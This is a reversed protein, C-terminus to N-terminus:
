LFYSHGEFVFDTVLNVRLVLPMLSMMAAYQNDTLHEKLVNFIASVSMEAQVKSNFIRLHEMGCIAYLANIFEDYDFKSTFKHNWDAMYVRKLDKPLHAMLASSAIPTIRTRITQFFGCLIRKSHMPNNPM